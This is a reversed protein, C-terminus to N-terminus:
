NVIVQWSDCRVKSLLAFSYIMKLGTTLIFAVFSYSAVKFAKDSPTGVFKEGLYAGVFPMILVGWIGTFLALLLGITAGWTAAKSGGKKKTLWVPAIFDVVTIVAAVAGAILLSSLTIDSDSCFFLLLYGVFSIPPGPLAPVLAGVVGVVVCIVAIAVLLIDM